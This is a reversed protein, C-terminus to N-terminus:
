LSLPEESLLRERRTREHMDHILQIDCERQTVQRRAFMRAQTAVMVNPGMETVQGFHRAYNVFSPVNTTVFGYVMSCVGILKGTFISTNIASKSYDGVLCGVFQSGTNVKGYAYEMKVEGYTNKLDSNCTGAGLNVWSGVYSHGLFGHHQKNTYPEVISAEVEGGVKTTHGLCVADKISAHEIVKSKPGIYVPGALYTYPGLSAGDDILVPGSKSNVVFDRPLQVGQGVFLGEQLQQFRGTELRHQLCEGIIKLQYQVLQHPHQVTELQVPLPQPPPDVSALIRKLVPESFVSSALTENKQNTAMSRLYSTPLLALLTESESQMVCPAQRKALLKLIHYASPSPVIRANVLLSWDQRADLQNDVDPYDAAQIEFLYPRVWGVLRQELQRLWDILRFSGITVAYTPRGTNAPHLQDALSDEFVVLNM